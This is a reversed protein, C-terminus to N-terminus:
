PDTPMSEFMPAVSALESATLLNTTYMISDPDSASAGPVKLRIVRPTQALAAGALAGLLFFRGQFM